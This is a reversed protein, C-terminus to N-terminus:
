PTSGAAATQCEQRVKAVDVNGVYVLGAVSVGWWLLILWVFGDGPWGDSGM